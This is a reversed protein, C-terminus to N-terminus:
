EKFDELEERKIQRLKKKEKQKEKEKLRKEKVSPPVETRYREKEETLAGSVLELLHEYALERNNFQSNTEQNEVILEGRSNIKSKLKEKIKVKDEDTLCESKSINWRIRVGSNVKNVNQGGPASSRYFEYELEKQPINYEQKQKKEFKEFM